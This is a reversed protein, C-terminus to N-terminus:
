VSPLSLRSSKPSLSTWAEERPNVVAGFDAAATAGTAVGDAIETLTRSVFEKLGMEM